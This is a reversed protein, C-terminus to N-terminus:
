TRVDAHGCETLFTMIAAASKAATLITVDLEKHHIKVGRTQTECLRPDLLTYNNRIDLLVQPDVLKSLVHERAESALRRVNVDSDCNINVSVFPVGRARALDVFEAFLELDAPVNSLTCTTMIVTILKNTIAKVGDFAAHRIATRLVANAPTRSPEIADALEVLLNNDILRSNSLDDDLARAITLKGVGPYGNLLVVSPLGTIRRTILNHTAIMEKTLWLIRSGKKKPRLKLRQLM